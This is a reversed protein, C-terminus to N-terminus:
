PLAVRRYITEGNRIAITESKQIGNKELRVTYTGPPLNLQAPTTRSIPKDNLFIAAGDPVSSIM